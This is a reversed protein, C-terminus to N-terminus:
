LLFSVEPLQANIFFCKLNRATPQSTVPIRNHLRNFKEIFECIPEQPEKKTQTLQALMTHDDKASKFRAEFLTRLTTWNTICNNPLHYFWVVTAGHLNEIFLRVSVDEHEVGLVGCAIYFAAIHENPHQSGDGLFLCIKEHAKRFNMYLHM